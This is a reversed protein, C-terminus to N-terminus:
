SGVRCGHKTPTRRLALVPFLLVARVLEVEKNSRFNKWEISSFNWTIQGAFGPRLALVFVSEYGRTPDKVLELFGVAGPGKEVTFFM